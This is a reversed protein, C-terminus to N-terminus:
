TSRRAKRERYAADRCRKSCSKANPRVLPRGCRCTRTEPSASLGGLARRLTARRPRSTRTLRSAGSRSIGTLRAFARPGLGGALRQLSQGLAADEYSVRLESTDADPDVLQADLVPGARGARRVLTVAVPAAPVQRRPRLWRCVKTALTSLVIAPEGPTTTVAVPRGADRWGLTHWDALDTGPDLALPSPGAGFARDREARLYRGFPRLMVGRSALEALQSPASVQLRAIVPFPAAGLRDWPARFVTAADEGRLAAEVAAVAAVQAWRHKRDALRGSLLPPDAVTGALAHESFKLVEGLSGDANRTFLVYRKPGLVLGYLPRSDHSADISWFPSEGDASLTRFRNLARELRSGEDRDALAFLLGDTDRAAVRM